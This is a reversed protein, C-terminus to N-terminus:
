RRWTRFLRSVQRWPLRLMDSPIGCCPWWTCCFQQLVELYFFFCTHRSIRERLKASSNVIWVNSGGCVDTNDDGNIDNFVDEDDAYISM